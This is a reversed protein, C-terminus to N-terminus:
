LREDEEYDDNYPKSLYGSQLEEKVRPDSQGKALEQAFDIQAKKFKIAIASCCSAYLTKIYLKPTKTNQKPSNIYRFKHFLEYISENMVCIGVLSYFRTM